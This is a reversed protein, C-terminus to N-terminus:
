RISCSWAKVGGLVGIEDDILNDKNLLGLINELSVKLFDIPIIQAMTPIDSYTM